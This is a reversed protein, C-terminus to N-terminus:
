VSVAHLGLHKLEKQRYFFFEESMQWNSLQPEFSMVFFELLSKKKKDIFM